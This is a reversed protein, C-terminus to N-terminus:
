TLWDLSFIRGKSKLYNIIYEKNEDTIKKFKNLAKKHGGCSPHRLSYILFSINKDYTLLFLGNTIEEKRADIFIKNNLIASINQGHCLIIDPAIAVIQKQLLSSTNQLHDLLDYYNSTSYGQDFKKLNIHGVGKIIPHFRCCSLTEDTKPFILQEFNSIIYRMEYSITLYVPGGNEKIAKIHYDNEFSACPEWMLQRKDSNYNVGEKLLAIVRPRNKKFYIKPSFIGDQSVQGQNNFIENKYIKRFEDFIYKSESLYNNYAALEIEKKNEIRVQKFNVYYDILHELSDKWNTDFIIDAQVVLNNGLIKGYDFISLWANNNTIQWYEFSNPHVSYFPEFLKAWKDNFNKNYTYIDNCNKPKLFLILDSNKVIELDVEKQKVYMPEIKSKQNANNISIFNNIQNKLDVSSDWLDSYILLFKFVM